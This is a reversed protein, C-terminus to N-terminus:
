VYKNLLATPLLQQSDLSPSHEKPEILYVEIVTVESRELFVRFCNSCKVRLGFTGVAM